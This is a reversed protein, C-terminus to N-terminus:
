FIEGTSVKDWFSPDAAPPKEHVMSENYICVIYPGRRLTYVPSVREVVIFNGRTRYNILEENGVADVFFFAPVDANKDRFEFYTFKGDDFIRIPAILDSGQMSYRFNYREPEGMYDPVPEMGSAQIAAIDEEPYVFRMVFIMGGDNIQETERAHLEFHYTRKDTLVTMNTMADQEIPKIFIRDKAPDVMWAISDGISVTEVIEDPHFEISSQYGYHGIFKFVENPSYRVTRLRFDTAISRPEQLALVDAAPMFVTVFLVLLLKNIWSKNM